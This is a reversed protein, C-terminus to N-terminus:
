LGEAPDSAFDLDEPNHESVAAIDDTALAGPSADCPMDVEMDSGGEQSLADSLGYQSIFTEAECLTTGEEVAVAEGEEVVEKKRRKLFLLVLLALAALGALGGGVAAGVAAASGGSRQAAGGAVPAAPTEAASSAPPRAGRSSPALPASARFPSWARVAATAAFEPTPDLVPSDGFAATLAFAFSMSSAASPGFVASFRLGLSWVWPDSGGMPESDFTLTTWDFRSWGSAGATASLPGSPFPAPTVVAGDSPTFPDTEDGNESSGLGSTPILADTPNFATEDLASSDNFIPTGAFRRSPTLADTTVIAASVPGPETPAAGGASVDPRASLPLQPSM